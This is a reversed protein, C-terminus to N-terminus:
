HASCRLPSSMSPSSPSAPLSWAELHSNVLEAPAAVLMVEMGQQDSSSAPLVTFDLM